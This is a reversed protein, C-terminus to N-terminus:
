KYLSQLYVNEYPTIRITGGPQRAVIELKGGLAAVLRELESVQMGHQLELM